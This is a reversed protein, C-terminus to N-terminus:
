NGVKVIELLTAYLDYHSILKKANEELIARLAQNARLRRPLVLFFAPNNDEITGTPTARLRGFRNGHDGMVFLFSNEL